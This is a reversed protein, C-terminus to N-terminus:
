SKGGFAGAFGEWYNIEVMKLAGKEFNESILNARTGVAEAEPGEPVYRAKSLTESNFFKPLEAEATAYARALVAARAEAKAAKLGASRDLHMFAALDSASARPAQMNFLSAALALGRAKGDEFGIKAEAAWISGENRWHTAAPSRALMLEHRDQKWKSFAALPAALARLFFAKQQMGQTQM